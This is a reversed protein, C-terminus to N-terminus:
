FYSGCHDTSSYMWMVSAFSNIRLSLLFMTGDSERDIQNCLMVYSTNIGDYSILITKDLFDKHFSASENGQYAERKVQSRRQNSNALNKFNRLHQIPSLVLEKLDPPGSVDCYDRRQRVDVAVKLKM